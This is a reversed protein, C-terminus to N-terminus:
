KIIRSISKIPHQMISHVSYCNLWCKPCKDKKILARSTKAEESTVISLFDKDRVNGIPKMYMCPYVEGSPMIHASTNLVECPIINKQRNKKLFLLSLKLHIKEIIESLNKIKYNKNVINLSNIISQNAKENIKNIGYIGNGHIVHASRIKDKLELYKTRFFNTNQDHVTTGFHCNIKEDKLRKYLKFCKDYNGKVGRLRDHDDRDGDLSITIFVDLGKNKAYKTYDVARDIALANTTFTFIKLNKCKAVAEDILSYYYKVLTVEGGTIALWYLNKNINIFFKKIDNINIENVPKIKWIECYECKSNCLDTLNILVKYPIIKDTKGLLKLFWIKINIYVISLVTSLRM